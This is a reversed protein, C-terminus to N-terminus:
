FMGCNTTMRRLVDLGAFNEIKLKWTCTDVKDMHICNNRYIEM